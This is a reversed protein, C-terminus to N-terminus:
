SHSYACILPHTRAGLVTIPIEDINITAECKNAKLGESDVVM